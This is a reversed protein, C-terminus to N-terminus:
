TSPQLRTLNPTSPMWSSPYEIGIEDMLYQVDSVAALALEAATPETVGDIPYIFHPYDNTISLRKQRGDRVYLIGYDDFDEDRLAMGFVGTLALDQNHLVRDKVRQIVSQKTHSDALTLMVRARSVHGSSGFTPRDPTVSTQILEVHTVDVDTQGLFTSWATRDALDSVLKLSLGKDRWKQNMSRAFSFANHSRGATAAVLLGHRGYNPVVLVLPLDDLVADNTGLPTGDRNTATDRVRRVRGFQGNSASIQFTWGGYQVQDVGFYTLRDDDRASSEVLEALTDKFLGYAGESHLDVNDFDYRTDPRRFQGIEVQFLRYGYAM